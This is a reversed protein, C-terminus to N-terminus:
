PEGASRFLTLTVERGNSYNRGEIQAGPVVLIGKESLRTVFADGLRNEVFILSNPVALMRDAAEEGSNLLKTKTGLLFPVSAESYGAVAIPRSRMPDIKTIAAALQPSLFLRDLGPGVAGLISAVSLGGLGLVLPANARWRGLSTCAIVGIVLCTLALLPVLTGSVRLYPLSGPVLGQSLLLVSAPAGYILPALICLAILGLNPILWLAISAWALRKSIPALDVLARACLLALAPLLPLTYHPLKNPVLEFLIWSPILWALCLMVHPLRRSKWAAWLGPIVFLSGPWFVAPMLALHYLPPAGHWLDGGRALKPALDGGIAREFFAWNTAMGIAIFWPLTIALVIGLGMLPRLQMLWRGNRRVISITIATLLVVAPGVPGKILIAGGLGAWFIMAVWLPEPAREQDWAQYIRFLAWMSLAILACQVSDTKALMAEGVQVLCTAMIAGALLGVPASFLMRGIACTLLVTAIAGLLSPLRYVAITTRHDHGFLHVSAAQLWYIGIPKKHRPEDQLNINVYDGTEVMQKSAQAFRAEDRDTVPMMILGPLQVILCLVILALGSVWGKTLWQGLSLNESMRYTTTHGFGAM